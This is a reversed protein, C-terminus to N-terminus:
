NNENLWQIIEKKVKIIERERLHCHNHIYKKFRRWSIATQRIKNSLEEPQELIVYLVMKANPSLMKEFNDKDITIEEPTKGPNTHYDEWPVYNDAKLADIAAQFRPTFEMENGGYRPRNNESIHEYKLVSEANADKRKKITCVPM